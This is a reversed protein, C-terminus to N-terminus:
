KKYYWFRDKDNRVDVHIWNASVGIARFGAKKAHKELEEGSHLGTSIDAAKGLQHQSIGKSTEFGRKTLSFQYQDCRYGGGPHIRLSCALSQRMAELKTFLDEDINTDACLDCPCDFENSSFHESLKQNLGKKIKYPFPM